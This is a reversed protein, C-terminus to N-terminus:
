GKFPAKPSVLTQNIQHSLLIEFEPQAGTFWLKSKFFYFVSLSFVKQILKIYIEVKKNFIRAYNLWVWRDYDIASGFIM